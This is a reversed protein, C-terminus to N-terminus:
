SVIVSAIFNGQKIKEGDFNFSVNKGDAKAQIYLHAMAIGMDIRRMDKIMKEMMSKPHRLYFDYRNGNKGILWPQLNVASPAIRVAEIFQDAEANGTIIEEARKREFGEPYIRPKDNKPLGATMTIICSLNDIKKFGSKPKKM